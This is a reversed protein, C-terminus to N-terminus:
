QVVGRLKALRTNPSDDTSIEVLRAHCQTSLRRIQRQHSDVQTKFDDAVTKNATNFRLFRLGHRLNLQTKEPLRHEFPDSIVVLTITARRAIRQLQREAAEDLGRFDSLIIVQSGTQLVRRLQKWSESLSLRTDRISTPQTGDALKQLLQLVKSKSRAPRLMQQTDGSHIVAGVRDGDSWSKWALLSALESMVVSKFQGRTAFFMPRRLDCWLLVPREREEEFLKTHAAGTRATVKWDMSRIDDGPSYPRSEAFEM